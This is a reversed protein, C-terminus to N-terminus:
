KTKDLDTATTLKKIKGKKLQDREIIAKTSPIMHTSFATKDGFKQAQVSVNLSVIDGVLFGGQDMEKNWNMGFDKRDIALHYEFFLNEKGWPDQIKGKYLLEGVVTKKINRIELIGSLKIKKHPVLIFNANSTFKIQPYNSAFFFEHGKLHFDRKPENTDVSKAEVIVQINKISNHVSDFDFSASYDKFQGQVKTLTMYDVEFNIKSHEKNIQYLDAFVNTSLFSLILINFVNTIKM